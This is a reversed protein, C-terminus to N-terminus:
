RLRGTIWARPYVPIVVCLQPHAQLDCYVADRRSKRSIQPHRKHAGSLKLSLYPHWCLFLM